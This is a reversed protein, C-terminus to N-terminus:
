KLPMVTAVDWQRQSGLQFKHILIDNFGTGQLCAACCKLTILTILIIVRLAQAALWCIIFSSTVSSPAKCAHLVVDLLACHM